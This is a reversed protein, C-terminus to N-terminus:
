NQENSIMCGATRASSQGMFRTLSRHTYVYIYIYIYITLMDRAHMSNFGASGMEHASPPFPLIAVSIWTPRLCPIPRPYTKISFYIVEVTLTIVCLLHGCSCAMIDIGVFLPRARNQRKTSNGERPIRTTWRIV